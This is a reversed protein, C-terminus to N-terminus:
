ARPGTPRRSSRSSREKSRIRAPWEGSCSTATASSSRRPPQQLRPRRRRCPARGGGDEAGPVAAALAADRQDRRAERGRLQRGPGRRRPRSLHHRRGRLAHRGQTQQHLPRELSRRPAPRTWLQRYFEADQKGSKLIRPNQGIAEDRTYGSTKEFAPNVYVISGSADTIVITEAAQEVATALRAHSEQARHRETIDRINCQIVKEHNVLYVNSVFEVEIRRGDSTQLAMDEYRVYGKQQLELFNAENALVDKFFGLDWIKKDLFAERSFGLLEVLFPNVDVIMGTEADLILIGDQASEFLRRYRLESAIASGGGNEQARHHGSVNRPRRQDGRQLQASADQEDSPHHHEGRSDDPTRRRPTKPCGSEIVQRDDNRYLDAQDRWAMEYDTKGVIDKPEALGADNAFAANCGLYVLNKDKWFVRAPITDLIGEILRQSAGLAEAAECRQRAVRLKQRHWVLGVVAGAALLLGGLIAVMQRQRRRLPAYVEASDM